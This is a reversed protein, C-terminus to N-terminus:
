SSSFYVWRIFKENYPFNWHLERIVRLAESKDNARIAETIQRHEDCAQLEWQQQYRRRPFDWLRQRIPILIRRAFVNGSLETFLNHFEWHPKDYAVYDGNQICEKMTDNLDQMLSLHSDTIKDFVSDILAAEIAAMVEYLYRIDELELQNIVVGSRPHISVFGEAELRIMADRLPTKSVQLRESMQNLNILAGPLLNGKDMESRLYDYASNRLSESNSPIVKKHEEKNKRM